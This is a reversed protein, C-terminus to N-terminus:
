QSSSSRAAHPSPAARRNGGSKSQGSGIRSETERVTPSDNGFLRQQIALAKRDNDDADGTRGQARFVAALDLYGQALDPHIPPLFQEYIKVAQQLLLQAEGYRGQKASLVGLSHLVSGREGGAAAPDKQYIELAQHFRQEADRPRDEHVFVNGENAYAKGLDLSSAAGSQKQFIQIARECLREAEKPRHESDYILALLNLTDALQHGTPWWKEAQPLITLLQGEADAYHSRNFSDSAELYAELWKSQRHREVTTWAAVSAAILLLAGLIWLRM